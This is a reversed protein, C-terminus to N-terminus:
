RPWSAVFKVLGEVEAASLLSGLGPMEDGGANIRQRLDAESLQRLREPANAVIGQTGSPISGDEGHCEACFYAFTERGGEASEAPLGSVTTTRGVEVVPKEWNRIFAVVEDIEQGTLPGGFDQGWAPMITRPRGQAITDHLFEDTVSGLFAKDNISPAQDTGKGDGGHCQACRSGYAAAGRRVREERSAAATRQVRSTESLQFIVAVNVAVLAFAMAAFTTWSYPREGTGQATEAKDM